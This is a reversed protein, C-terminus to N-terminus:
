GIDAPSGSVTNVSLNNVTFSRSAGVNGPYDREDRIFYTGVPLAVNATTYNTASTNGVTFGLLSDAVALNMHPAATAGASATANITFNVTAGGAPVLLYTGLYGTGSLTTSNASKIALSAGALSTQATAASSCACVGTAAATLLTFARCQGRPSRRKM